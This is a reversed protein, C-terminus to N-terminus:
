QRGSILILRFLNLIQLFSDFLQRSLNCPQVALEKPTLCFLKGYIIGIHGVKKGFLKGSEPM